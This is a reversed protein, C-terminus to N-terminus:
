KTRYHSTTYYINNIGQFDMKYTNINNVLKSDITLLRINYENAFAVTLADTAGFKSAYNIHSIEINKNSEYFFLVNNM